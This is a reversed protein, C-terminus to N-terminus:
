FLNLLIYVLGTFHFSNSFYNLYRLLHLSGHTLVSFILLDIEKLNIDLNIVIEILNGSSRKKTSILLSNRINTQFYM